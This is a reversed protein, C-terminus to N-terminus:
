DLWPLLLWVVNMCVFRQTQACTTPHLVHAYDIAHMHLLHAHAHLMDAGDYMCTTESIATIPLGNDSSDLMNAVCVTFVKLVLLAVIWCEIHCVVMIWSQLGYFSVICCIEEILGLGLLGSSGGQLLNRRNWRYLWQLGLADAVDLVFWNYLLVHQLVSVGGLQQTSRMCVHKIGTTCALSAAM